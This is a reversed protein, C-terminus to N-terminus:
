GDVSLRMPALMDCVRAPNKLGQDTMWRESALILKRGQDGGIMAGRRHRTVALHSAMGVTEFGNEASSLLAFAKTTHGREAAVGARLLNALPAGWTTDKRAIRDADREAGDLYTERAPTAQSTEGAMAIAVRARTSMSLVYAAELNLLFSRALNRWQADLADQADRPRGSYLAFDCRRRLEITHEVHFGRPSWRAMALRLEEEARVPDDDRLCYVAANHLRLNAEAYVNGRDLSERLCEPVRRFFLAFEGAFMMASLGYVQCVVIQYPLAYQDRYLQEGQSFEHHAEDWRGALYALMGATVHLTGHDIETDHRSGMTLRADSEKIREVLAKATTLLREARPRSRRRRGDSIAEFTLARAIRQPEGANLARVLHRSQFEIARISDTFGLSRVVAHCLDIRRLEDAPIEEPRRETFRTGRWLVYPRRLLVSLLARRPSSALKMGEADLVKQLVEFGEDLHGGILLQEAARGQLTRSLGPEAGEAATLYAHASEIVRGSSALADALRLWLDRKDAHEPPHLDLALKYLRAAREFALARLARDAATIAYYSAKGLDGASQFHVALAEPDAQGSAELALGLRHHYRQVAEGSLGALITQRLRDHYPEIERSRAASRTRVFQNARLWAVIDAAGAEIDVASGAVGVDLPRGAVASVELLRRAPATLQQLRHRLVAELSTDDGGALVHRVLQGIFFPSGSSERQIAAVRAAEVDPNVMLAKVLAETEDSTLENVEVVKVNAEADDSQGPLWERLLPSRAAEEQRFSAILLLAPQDPPRLLERLLLASDADGWHLDDISLVLPRRESLRGLMERFAAAARRRLEHSDQVDLAPRQSTAAAVAAIRQLVPFVRALASMGRPLLSEAQGRPLASLHSALSDVLADLAKYPVEEREYCRGSLVVVNPESEQATRLFQNVLATKGMGSAGTVHVVVAKSNRTESLAARLTALHDERGVFIRPLDRREHEPPTRRSGHSHPQLRRLVETGTPRAFPDRQLLQQCLLVLDAPSDRHVASALDPDRAQKERLVNSFSGTFPLRGTLALHLMVGVSYWDSAETLATGAAQEPSVYEPTGAFESHGLGGSDLALGTALGFDLLVVRGEPTVLVNSPKIDCHLIRHRHLFAIGDALQALSARLRPEHPRGAVALRATAGRPSDFPAPTTATTLDGIPSSAPTLSAPAGDARVYVHDFFDTGRVLEMCLLWHEHDSILEHLNVLNGHALDALTRFERKFRFLAAPDSRRLVKLAVAGNREHDFAEYVEGFGGSGLLREIRFRPLSNLDLAM